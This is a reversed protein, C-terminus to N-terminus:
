GGLSELQYRREQRIIGFAADRRLISTSRCVKLLHGKRGITGEHRRKWRQVIFWASTVKLAPDKQSNQIARAHPPPQHVRTTKTSGIRTNPYLHHKGEVMLDPTAQVSDDGM